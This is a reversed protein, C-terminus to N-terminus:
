EKFEDTSERQDSILKVVVKQSRSQIQSNYDLHGQQSLSSAKRSEFFTIQKQTIADRTQSLELSKLKDISRLYELVILKMNQIDLRQSPGGLLSRWLIDKIKESM